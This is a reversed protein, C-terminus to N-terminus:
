APVTALVKRRWSLLIVLGMNLVFILAPYITTTFTMNEVALAALLMQLGYFFFATIGESHPNNWSKRYTPYFAVVDIGCVILVAWLADSTAVWVPIASLAGIFAIWDGRTITKEGYLLSLGAIIFCFVSSTGLAWSGAGADGSRQVAFGILGITGWVVWSFLHPRIHRRVVQWLYLLNSGIGLLVAIGGLIEKSTM